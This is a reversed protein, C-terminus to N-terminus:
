GARDPRHHIEEIAKEIADRSAGAQNLIDALAGKLDLAALIFLESAIYQDGRKQALKDTLNMLKILENSFSIEGEAGSVRPLSELREGLQSRLQNVRVGSRALLHSASGGEQDLLAALVHAPEILQNDLGAALSQADALALQFKSTLKDM